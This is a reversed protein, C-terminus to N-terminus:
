GDNLRCGSQDSRPSNCALAFTDGIITCPHSTGDEQLVANIEITSREIIRLSVADPEDVVVHSLMAGKMSSRGDAWAIEHKEIVRPIEVSVSFQVIGQGMHSDDFPQFRVASHDEDAADGVGDLAVVHIQVLWMNMLMGAAAHQVIEYPPFVWGIGVM